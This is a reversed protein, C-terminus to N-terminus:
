IRLFKISKEVVIQSSSIMKNELLFSAKIQAFQGDLLEDLSLPWTNATSTM